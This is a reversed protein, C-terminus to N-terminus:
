TDEIHITGSSGMGSAVYKISNRSVVQDPAGACDAKAYHYAFSQSKGNANYATVPQYSTATTENHCDGMWSAVVLQNFPAATKSSSSKSCALVVLPLLLISGLSKTKM